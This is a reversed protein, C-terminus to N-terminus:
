PLTEAPADLLVSGSASVTLEQSGSPYTILNTTITVEIDVNSDNIPNKVTIIM